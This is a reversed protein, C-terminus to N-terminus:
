TRGWPPQRPSRVRQPAPMSPALLGLWAGVRGYRGALQGILTIGYGALRRQMAAGVGWLAESAPCVLEGVAALGIGRGQEVAFEAPGPPELTQHILNAAPEAIARYLQAAARRGGM